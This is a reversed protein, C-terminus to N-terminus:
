WQLLPFRLFSMTIISVLIIIIIIVIFGGCSIYLSCCFWWSSSVFREVLCQTVAVSRPRPRRGRTKTTGKAPSMMAASGRTGQRVDNTIFEQEYGGLSLCAVTISSVKYSWIRTVYYHM